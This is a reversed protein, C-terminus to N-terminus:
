LNQEGKLEELRKILLDLERQGTCHLHEGSSLGTVEESIAQLVEVTVGAELLAKTLTTITRLRQRIPLPRDPNM